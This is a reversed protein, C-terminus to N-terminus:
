WRCPAAPTISPTSTGSRKGTRTRSISPLTLASWRTHKAPTPDYAPYSVKITRRMPRATAWARTSPVGMDSSLLFSWACGEARMAEIALQMLERAHGQRRASEVTVVSAVCGVRQPTGNADRIDRLWYRVTSLLNGAAEVAVFTHELYLPDLRAGARVYEISPAGWTQMRLQFVADEDELRMKRYEVEM